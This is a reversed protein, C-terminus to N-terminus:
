TYMCRPFPRHTHANSMSLSPHLPLEIASSCLHTGTPPGDVYVRICMAVHAHVHARADAAGGRVIVACHGRMRRRGVSRLRGRHADPRFRRMRQVVDHSARHEVRRHERQLGVGVPVGALRSRSARVTHVYRDMPTHRDMATLLPFQVRLCLAICLAALRVTLGACVPVNAHM